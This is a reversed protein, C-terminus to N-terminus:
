AIIVSNEITFTSSSNGRELLADVYQFPSRGGLSIIPNPYRKGGDKALLPLKLKQARRICMQNILREVKKYGPNYHMKEQFLVPDNTEKDLPLCIMRKAVIRGEKNKVVVARIKGDLLYGLLCKNSEPDGNVRLCTKVETSILLLDCPDDTDQVILDEKKVHRIILSSLDNAFEKEKKFSSTLEHISQQASTLTEQNLALSLITKEQNKIRLSANIEQKEQKLAQDLKKRELQIEEELFSLVKEIKIGESFVQGLSPYKKAWEKGLHQDTYIKEKFFTHFNFSKEEIQIEELLEKETLTEGKRWEKELEERGKFVEKLHVSDEYRINPFTQNLVSRIFLSFLPLAQKKESPPLRELSSLYTMIAQKERFQGFTKQYNQFFDPMDEIAFKKCFLDQLLKETKKLDEIQDVSNVFGFFVLNEIMQMWRVLDKEEEKSTLLQQILKAKDQKSFRNEKKLVYILQFFIEQKFCDELFTKKIKLLEHPVEELLDALALAPLALSDSAKLPPKKVTILSLSLLNRLLPHPFAQLKKLLEQNTEITETSLCGLQHAKILLAIWLFQQKQILPGKKKKIENLYTEFFPFPTIATEIEEIWKPNFDNQIWSLYFRYFEADTPFDKDVQKIREEFDDPISTLFRLILAQRAFDCWNEKLPQPIWRTVNIPDNLLCTKLIEVKKSPALNFNESHKAFCSPHRESCIEAMEELYTPNTLEFQKIYKPLVLSLASMKAFQFRDAEKNLGFNKINAMFAIMDEELCIEAIKKCYDQNTLNFNHLASSLNAAHKKACIQALKFRDKENKLDFNKIQKICTTPYHEAYITAVEKLYDQNTLKFDQIFEATDEYKEACIQALEFRDKEDTLDIMTISKASSNLEITIEAIKRLYPQSFHFPHLPFSIKKRIFPSVVNFRDEETKLYTTVFNELLEESESNRNVQVIMVEKWIEELNVPFPTRTQKNISQIALCHLRSLPISKTITSPPTKELSKLITHESLWVVRKNKFFIKILHIIRQWELKITYSIKKFKNNPPNYIYPIYFYADTPNIM